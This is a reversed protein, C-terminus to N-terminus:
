KRQQREHFYLQMDRMDAGPSQEGMGRMENWRRWIDMEDTTKQKGTMHHHKRPDTFRAKCKPCKFVGVKGSFLGM